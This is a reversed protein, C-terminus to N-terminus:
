WVHQVMGIGTREVVLTEFGMQGGATVHTLGVWNFYKNKRDVWGVGQVEGRQAGKGEIDMDMVM